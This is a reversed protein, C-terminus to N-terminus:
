PDEAKPPKQGFARLIGFLLALSIPLTIYPSIGFGIPVYGVGLSVLGVTLAYPLQTAVHSLHDCGAAASSLVTTDSIPSCHDGWIAGALVAGITGLAYPHSTFNAMVDNEGAMLYYTLTIFLPMLLGMTAFSSGTAFSVAAAVVFATAPMWRASLDDGLSDIIFGATNLHQDDCLSAISWALVLIVVAMLMSQLGKIGAAVTDALTLSKLCVAVLGAILTASFASYLLVKYSDPSKEYNLEWFMGISLVGLLTCLPLIANLITRPGHQATSTEATQTEITEASGPDLAVRAECERMSGFDRGSWAVAGVFCLLLIPYFRYPITALFVSYADADLKLQELAPSIQSIEFGVWTSIIALGAVPASTSDVLFALKERSIRLRDSVSRMTSGVLLSNAYDDFFVVLGLLWTMVQGHERTKAYHTLRDVLARTGGSASMIGIMGGLLMTFLIARMHDSSADPPVLSHLLHTDITRLFAFFPNGGALALAGAFVGALLAVIVDKLWIALVIAVLPPVLSLWKWILQTSHAVTEGDATVQIESGELYVKRGASLDSNLELIGNNWDDPTVQEHNQLVRVGAFQVPGQFNKDIEGDPLVATIRVSQSGPLPVDALAVDPAEIRFRPSGEDASPEEAAIAPIAQWGWAFM